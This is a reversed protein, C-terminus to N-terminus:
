RRKKNVLKMQAATPKVGRPLVYEGRHAYIPGDNKLFGGKKFRKLKKIFDFIVAKSKDNM